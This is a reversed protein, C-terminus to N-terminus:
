DLRPGRSDQGGGKGTAPSLPKPEVTISEIYKDTKYRLINPGGKFTLNQWIAHASGTSIEVQETIERVTSRPVKMIRKEVREVVAANRATQPRRFQCWVGVPPRKLVRCVSEVYMAGKFSQGTTTSVPSSSTVHRGHDSVKVVPSSSNPLRGTAYRLISAGQLTLNPDGLGFIYMTDTLSQAGLVGEGGRMAPTCAVGSGVSGWSQTIM